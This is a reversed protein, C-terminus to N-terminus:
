TACVEADLEVVIPSRAELGTPSPDLGSDRRQEANHVLRM